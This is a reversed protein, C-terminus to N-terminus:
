GSGESSLLLFTGSVSHIADWIAEGELRRRNARWLLRNKPDLETHRESAFRSSQRYTESTMILRHMAKVSGGREVFTTALWDLLKPHSPAIGM